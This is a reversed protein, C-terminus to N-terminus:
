GLKKMEKVTQACADACAKCEPHHAAHKDCEAKCSECVKVCVSAMAKLHPSNAAVLTPVARCVALMQNVSQSCGAMSTDGKALLDLCHQMCVEGASVCNRLAALAAANKAPAPAAAAAKHDHKHQARAATSSLAQAAVGAAGITLLDRRNM